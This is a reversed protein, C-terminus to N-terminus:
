PCPGFHSAVAAIDMADVVGDGDVDWPCAAPDACPGQNALVQRLDSKEVVGDGDVDWPCASGPCPGFHGILALLDTVGVAGDGDFDGPCDEGGACPGFGSLLLLLDTVGVDGDGDLDWPCADFEITLAPRLEIQASERSAFKKATRVEAENGTLLWGFDEGPSDLWAQVDAVMQSTSPWTYAVGASGVTQTSSVTASFDGGPDVWFQDPYFTHLWTADGPTAPAGSGGGSSSTGEGWDALVRHLSHAQPGSNTQVLSLTLSAETIKAGAPLAGAVDFALVARQMTGGGTRGSFVFEGAGNSTTGTSFLTNDKVPTLVVTSNNAGAASLRAAARAGGLGGILLLLAPVVVLRRWRPGAKAQGIHWPARRGQGDASSM